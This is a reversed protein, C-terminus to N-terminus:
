PDFVRWEPHRLRINVIFPSREGFDRRGKAWTKMANDLGTESGFVMPWLTRAFEWFPGYAQGSDETADTRVRRGASERTAWAYIAALDQLVLYRKLMETRFPPPDWDKAVQEAAAALQQLRAPCNKLKRDM